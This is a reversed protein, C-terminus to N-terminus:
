DKAPQETSDMEGGSSPAADPTPADAASGAIKYRDLTETIGTGACTRKVLGVGLVFWADITTGSTEERKKVHLADPFSGCPLSVAEAGVLSFSWKDRVVPQFDAYDTLFDLQWKSDASEPRNRRWVESGTTLMQCPIKSNGLTTEARYVPGKDTQMFSEIRLTYSSRAGSGSVGYTWENGVALPVWQNASTSAVSIDGALASMDLSPQTVSSQNTPRPQKCVEEAVKKMRASRESPAPHTRLYRPQSRGGGLGEFVAMAKPGGEVDYGAAWVYGIATADADNEDARSYKLNTLGSVLRAINGQSDGVALSAVMGIVNVKDMKETTKAWHRHAAHALEHALVYAIQDDSPMRALIGEYFYIFGGPFAFANVDSSALVKFQYPYRKEPLAATLASGIRDVRKQLAEDKSIGYQREVERAAERGLDVEAQPDTRQLMAATAQLGMCLMSTLFVFLSITSKSRLNVM